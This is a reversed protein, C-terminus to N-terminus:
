LRAIVDCLQAGLGISYGESCFFVRNFSDALIVIPLRGGPLTLDLCDVLKSRIGKTDIGFLVTSPLTGYRGAAIEAQLKEMAAESGTLLLIPRGWAELETRVASLDRLFHNTPEKGPEVVALAYFGRGVASLVSQKTLSEGSLGHFLSEADFSGIVAVKETDERIVLDVTTTEGERVTFFKMTVPVSGDSSRNGSVLLYRGAELPYGDRFAHEWDMGGGMDVEGEDFTLLRPRGDVM